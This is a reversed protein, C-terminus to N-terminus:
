PILVTKIYKKNTSRLQIHYNGAQTKSISWVLQCGLIVWILSFLYLSEDSVNQGMSFKPVFRHSSSSRFQGSRSGEAQFFGNVLCRLALLFESSLANSLYSKQPKQKHNEILTELEKLSVLTLKGGGESTDKTAISSHKKTNINKNTALILSPALCLALGDQSTFANLLSLTFNILDFESLYTKEFKGGGLFTRAVKVACPELWRYSIIFIDCVRWRSIMFCRRTAFLDKELFVVTFDPKTSSACVEM